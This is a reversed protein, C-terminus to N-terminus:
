YAEQIRPKPRILDAINLKKQSEHLALTTTLTLLIKQHNGKSSSICRKDSNLLDITGQLIKRENENNIIAFLKTDDAYM